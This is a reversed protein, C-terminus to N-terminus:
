RRRVSLLIRDLEALLQYLDDQVGEGRVSKEALTLAWFLHYRSAELRDVFNAMDVGIPRYM